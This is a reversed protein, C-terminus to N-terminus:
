DLNGSSISSVYTLIKKISPRNKYEPILIQLIIKSYPSNLVSKPLKCNNIENKSRFPLKQHLLYCWIIGFSWIDTYYGYIGSTLLEIPYHTHQGFGTLFMTNINEDKNITESIGFDILKLTNNKAIMINDPRLDLHVINKTHIYDIVNCLQLIIDHLKLNIYNTTNVFETLNYGDVFEQVLFNYSNYMGEGQSFNSYFQVVNSHRLSQLIKIENTDYYKPIKKICKTGGEKDRVKYIDSIFSKFYHKLIIYNEM